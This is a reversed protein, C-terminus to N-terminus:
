EDAQRDDGVHVVFLRGRPRVGSVYQLRIVWKRLARGHRVVACVKGIVVGDGLRGCRGKFAIVLPDPCDVKM